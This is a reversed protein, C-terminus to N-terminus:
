RFPMSHRCKRKLGRRLGAKAISASRNKTEEKNQAVTEKAVSLNEMSKSKYLLRSRTSVGYFDDQSQSKVLLWKNKIKCLGTLNHEHNKYKCLSESCKSFLHPKAEVLDRIKTLDISVKCNLCTEVGGSGRTKGANKRLRLIRLDNTYATTSIKRPSNFRENGDLTPKVPDLNEKAPKERTMIGTSPTDVNMNATKSTCSTAPFELLTNEEFEFNRIRKCPNEEDMEESDKFDEPFSPCHGPSPSSDSDRPSPSGSNDM